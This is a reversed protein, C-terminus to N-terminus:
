DWQIARLQGLTCQGMCFQQSFAAIRGVDDQDTNGLANLDICYEFAVAVRDGGWRTAPHLGALWQTLSKYRFHEALFLLLCL